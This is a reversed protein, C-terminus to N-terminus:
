RKLLAHEHNETKEDLQRIKKTQKKQKRTIFNRKKKKTKSFLSKRRSKKRSSVDIFSTEDNSDDSEFVNSDSDTSHRRKERKEDADVCNVFSMKISVTSTSIIHTPTPKRNSFGCWAPNPKEPPSHTPTPKVTPKQHTKV